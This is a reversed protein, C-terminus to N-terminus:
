LRILLILNTRCLTHPCVSIAPEAILTGITGTSSDSPAEPFATGPVFQDGDVRSLSWVVTQICLVVGVAAGRSQHYMWPRGGAPFIVLKLKRTIPPGPCAPM